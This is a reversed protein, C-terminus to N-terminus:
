PEWGEALLGDLQEVAQRTRRKWTEYTHDGVAPFEVSKIAWVGDRPTNM